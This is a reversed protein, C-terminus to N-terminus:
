TTASAQRALHACQSKVYELTKYTENWDRAWLPDGSEARVADSPSYDGYHSCDFGIWWLHEPKGPEPIHCVTEEPPGEQCEKGFTVGGHVEPNFDDSDYSKGHWSHGPEVGVYGCWHGRSPHRKALCAFGTEPDTWQVKDPEGDWDGQPWGNRDVRPDIWNLENM